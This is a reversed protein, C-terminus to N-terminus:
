STKQERFGRDPDSSRNTAGAAPSSLRAAVADKMRKRRANLAGADAPERVGARALYRQAAGYKEAPVKVRRGLVEPAAIDVSRRRIAPHGVKDLLELDYSRQLEGV